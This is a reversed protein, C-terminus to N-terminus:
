KKPSNYPPVHTQAYTKKLQRQQRIREEEEAERAAEIARQEDEMRERDRRGGPKYYFNYYGIGGGVAFAATYAVWGFVVSSKTNM